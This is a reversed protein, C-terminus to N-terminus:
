IGINDNEAVISALETARNGVQRAWKSDLMEKAAIDHHGNEFAKHMKKFEAFKSAGLNFYMDLIANKRNDDLKSYWKYNKKLEDECRDVLIALWLEAVPKPIPEMLNFGWGITPVGVADEYIVDSYGEHKKISENVNM